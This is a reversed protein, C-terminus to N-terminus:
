DKYKDEYKQILNSASALKTRLSRLKKVVEEPLSCSQKLKSRFLQKDTELQRTKIKSAEMLYKTTQELKSFKKYAQTEEPSLDKKKLEIQNRLTELKKALIENNESVINIKDQLQQNTQNITPLNQTKLTNKHNQIKVLVEEWKQLKQKLTSSKDLLETVKENLFKELTETLFTLEEKKSETNPVEVKFPQLQKEDEQTPVKFSSQIELDELKLQYKPTEVVQQVKLDVVKSKSTFSLYNITKSCDIIEFDSVEELQNRELVLSNKFETQRKRLEVKARIENIWPFFLQYVVKKNVYFHQNNSSKFLGPEEYFNLQEFLHLKMSAEKDQFSLFVDGVGVVLELGGKKRLVFVTPRFGSVCTIGFYKGNGSFAPGQIGPKYVAMHEQNLRFYDKSYSKSAPLKCRTVEDLWQLSRVEFELYSNNEIRFVMEFESFDKSLSFKRPVFPSLYYVEGSSTLVACALAGTSKRCEEIFCFSVVDLHEGQKELSIEQEPERTNLSVDFLRLAERTLVAMSTETLPHWEVCLYKTEPFWVQKWESLETLSAVVLDEKGQIALLEGHAKIVQPKFPLNPIQRKQVASTKPDILHITSNLDRELVIVKERNYAILPEQYTQM